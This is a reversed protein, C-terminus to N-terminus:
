GKRVNLMKLLLDLMKFSLKMMIIYFQIVM